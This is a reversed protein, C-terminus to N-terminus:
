SKFNKRYDANRDALEKVRADLEEGTVRGDPKFDRTKMISLILELPVPKYQWVDVGVDCQLKNDFEPLRGHSHGYLNISGYHSREWVRMACHTLIFIAGGLNRIAMGEHVEAFLRLTDLPMKDHSGKVLFKKGNLRHLFKSHDRWALDGLIWTHDGQSVISNFNNILAENMEQVDAFPRKAHMIIGGYGQKNPGHGLHLDATFFINMIAGLLKHQGDETSRRM